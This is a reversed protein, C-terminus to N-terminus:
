KKRSVFRPEPLGQIGPRVAFVGGALPQDALDISGPRISTIYLTDLQPGGFACMAPKKVPLHITRDLRGEPTFRYVAAGDNACIWYCDDVDIAAGDPRGPMDRMDIFNRRKGPKGTEIDYDYAWVQQIDPHSDSVYMTRGDASFALGNGVIFAQDFLTELANGSFSYLSGVQAAAAVNNFMSSVLFRGQRDCRGDNFRMNERPHSASAWRTTEVKGDTGLQVRYIGTEMAALWDDGDVHAICGVMEPLTWERPADHDGSLSLLARRPIDVWYLRSEDARWVPSEGVSNRVDFVLDVRSMAFDM